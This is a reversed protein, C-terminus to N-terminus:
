DVGQSVAQFKRVWQYASGKVCTVYAKKPDDRLARRFAGRVQRKAWNTPNSLDYPRPVRHMAQTCTRAEAIVTGMLAYHGPKIEWTYVQPGFWPELLRRMEAQEDATVSEIEEAV